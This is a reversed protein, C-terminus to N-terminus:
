VGYARKRLEGVSNKWSENCQFFLIFFYPTHQFNLDFAPQL